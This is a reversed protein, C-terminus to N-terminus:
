SELKKMEDVVDQELYLLNDNIGMCESINCILSNIRGLLQIVERLHEVKQKRTLPKM